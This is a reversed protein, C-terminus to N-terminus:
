LALIVRKLAAMTGMCIEAPATPSVMVYAVNGLVRAYVGEERLGEVVEVAAHSDYGQDDSLMEVAMVSGIAFARDVGPAQSLEKVGAEDWKDSMRGGVGPYVDSKELQSFFEVGAACGVPHATYSHGHLLCDSKAGSFAEFVRETAVTAAMPVLGGTLLKAYCSVDPDEGLLERASEVGLRWLGCFVEDYIVPMGRKRCELVRQFLPDVFIMGGAGMVIPELLLSGLVVGDEAEFEDMKSRVHTRYLAALKGVSERAELDFAADRSELIMETEGAVVASSDGASARLTEPLEVTFRGDRWSVSPTELFLGKSQYWAHQGRNFVSPVAVNMAGLTDGHYCGDQAVVSLRTGVPPESSGFRDLLFRRFGMKIGVETATSGNDTYFVRSAWGRGPGRVLKEAVELAPAHINGPFIVHGYRGAAEAVALAMGPNGHGVGQTWWSACGDLLARHTVRADTSTSSREVEATCFYEGHASDLLNVGGEGLSDHQTFPWWIAKRARAEMGVLDRLGAARAETLGGLLTQLSQANAAYWPHLPEDSPPIAPLEFVPISGTHCSVAAANGLDGESAIMVVGLVSYGRTRLSELASLTVGIGGLKGDGVLLVPLRIPRFADAQLSGSPAPSLVGGATEVLVLSGGGEGDSGHRLASKIEEVLASVLFDDPVITGDRAAALHPSVPDTFDFLTSTRCKGGAHRSVFSTDSPTGAQVPKIYSAQLGQLEATRLLGAAIVTKGVDTNAGYVQIVHDHQGLTADVVSRGGYITR